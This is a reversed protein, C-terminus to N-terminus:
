KKSKQNENQIDNSIIGASAICLPIGGGPHVSGGVFHLGGFRNVRNPHRMFASFRSNSSSGYIAGGASSTNEEITVPTGISESVIHKKVDVNLMRSLKKIINTRLEAMVEATYQGKNVPANIMVFWNEMEAPADRGTVKNSIFIYVTPDHYLQKKRFLYRFEEKYNEAFFINHLELNPFTRNVGWYFIVASSSKEMVRVRLPIKRAPMLHKYFGTVDMDSVVRDAFFSSGNVRVGRVKNKQFLVEEVRSNFNFDVGLERAHNVLQTIIDYMGKDPFYAGESHELHAIMNLTAPARYPNSGNYTGYRDFLKVLYKSKFSRKNRQHMSLLMDLKHFKKAVKKGAESRFTEWRAFPRFIFLGASLDYMEKVKNFYNHVRWTPEGVKECAETAFRHPDAWANLVIGDEYHYKCVNDLKHYKLNTQSQSKGMSFLEEVLGPLTFLSPGTDFRFGDKKLENLKGGPKDAQEFVTVDHGQAALRIAAAIGGIGSGVIAIKQKM